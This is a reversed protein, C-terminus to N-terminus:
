PPGALVGPVGVIPIGTIYDVPHTGTTVVPSGTATSSLTISPSTITTKGVSSLKLKKGSAIKLDEVSSTTCEGEVIVDKRGKIHEADDEEVVTYRKGQVGFVLTGDPHFECWTGSEHQINIREVGNTDDFEVLHGASSRYVRNSPYEAAYPNPPEQISAGALGSASDNGRFLWGPEDEGLTGGQAAYPVETESGSFGYWGGFVIPHATNGEEFAVLVSSGVPPIDLSGHKNNSIHHLVEAWPLKNKDVAKAADVSKNVMQRHVSEVRVRVRGRKEPDNVDEVRGRYWGKLPYDAFFDEPHKIIDYINM